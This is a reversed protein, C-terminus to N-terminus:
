NNRGEAARRHERSRVTRGKDYMTFRNWFISPNDFRRSHIDLATFPLRDAHRGQKWFSLVDVACGTQRLLCTHAPQHLDTDGHVRTCVPLKKSDSGCLVRDAFFSIRFIEIQVIEFFRLRWFRFQQLCDFRNRKSVGRQESDSDAVLSGLRHKVKRRKGICLSV